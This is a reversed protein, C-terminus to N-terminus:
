SLDSCSYDPKCHWSTDEFLQHFAGKKNVGQELKKSHKPLAGFPYKCLLKRQPGDVWSSVAFFTLLESMKKWTAYHLLQQLFEKKEKDFSNYATM